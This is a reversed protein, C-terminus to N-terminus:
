VSGRIDRGLWTGGIELSRTAGAVCGSARDITVFPYDIGAQCAAIAEEVWHHLKETAAVSGARFYRWIEEDQAVPWLAVADSAKIPRLIM